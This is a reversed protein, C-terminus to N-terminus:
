LTYAVYRKCYVSSYSADIACARIQPLRPHAIVRPWGLLARYNLREPTSSTGLHKEM